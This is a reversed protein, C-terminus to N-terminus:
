ESQVYVNIYQYGYLDYKVLNTHSLTQRLICYQVFLLPFLEVASLM